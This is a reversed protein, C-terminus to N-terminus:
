RSPPPHDWPAIIGLWGALAPGETLGPKTRLSPPAVVGPRPRAGARHEGHRIALREVSAGIPMSTSPETPRSAQRAFM